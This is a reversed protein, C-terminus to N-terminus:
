SKELLEQGRCYACGSCGPACPDVLRLSDRLADELEATRKEEAMLIVGRVRLSKELEAIRAQLRSVEQKGVRMASLAIRNEITACQKWARSWRRAREVPPSAYVIIADIM